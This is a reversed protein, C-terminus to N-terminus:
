RMASLNSIMLNRRRDTEENIREAVGTAHSLHEEVIEAHQTCCIEMAAHMAKNVAALIEAEHGATVSTGEIVKIEELAQRAIRELSM